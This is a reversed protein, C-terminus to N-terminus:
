RHLTLYDISCMKIVDHKCLSTRTQRATIENVENISYKSMSCNRRLINWTFIYSLAANERYINTNTWMEGINETKNVYESLIVLKSKQDVRYIVVTVGPIVTIYRYVQFNPLIAYCLQPGNVIRVFATAWSTFEGSWDSNFKQEVAVCVCHQMRTAGGVGGDGEDTMRITRKSRLSPIRFTEYDLTAIRAPWAALQTRTHAGCDRLRV